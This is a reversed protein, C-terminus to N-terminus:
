DAVSPLWTVLEPFGVILLIVLVACGIYPLGSRVISNFTTGKPAVGQLVFLGLGFPPTILGIELVVLYLISFWILDFGLSSALPYFLPVTLMLISVQEMLCGLFLLVLLMVALMLYPSLKLGISWSVLGSTAGSLALLQGFTSSGIIILFVMATTKITGVLARVMAQASLKRYFASAILVGLVGFAAAESPTAIGALMVGIVVVVILLMPALGFAIATLKEQLRIKKVEYPPGAEPDIRLQAFITAVYFGALVLGPLVGGILIKGIDVKALSGLLVALASPPIIIALGGTGLIPGLSMHPKYGRRTMEPVMSSGLLATNAMSSGSLTAFVTGGAVTVYSLRGRVKGFLKDFADFVMQAVGTHFFLEGMMLFLPIPVLAFSTVSTTANAALQRMGNDGGIFVLAGVISGAFFAFAVPVAFAILVVITGMLLLGSWYWEM